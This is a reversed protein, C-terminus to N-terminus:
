VDGCGMNLLMVDTGIVPRKLRTLYDGGLGKTVVESLSSKAVSCSVELFHLPFVFIRVEETLKFPKSDCEKALKM